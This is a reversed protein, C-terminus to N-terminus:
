KTILQRAIPFDALHTWQVSGYKASVEAKADVFHTNRLMEQRSEESTYGLQSKITLAPTTDGPALGSTGAATLFGSGWEENEQVRRFLVNVQLTVLKQTSLNKLKFSITPVLKNKGNVVGVDFWGTTVDLLQLGKTLDVPPGCATCALLGVVLWLRVSARM